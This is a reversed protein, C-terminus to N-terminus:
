RKSKPPQELKEGIESLRSGVTGIQSLLQSSRDLGSLKNATKKASEIALAQLEKKAKRARIADTLTNISQL